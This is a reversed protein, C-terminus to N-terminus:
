VVNNVEYGQANRVNFISAGSFQPNIFLVTIDESVLRDSRVDRFEVQYFALRGVPLATSVDDWDALLANNDENRKLMLNQPANPPAVNYM